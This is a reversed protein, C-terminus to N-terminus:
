YSIRQFSIIKRVNPQFVKIDKSLGYVIPEYHLPIILYNDAIFKNIDALKKARAELNATMDAELLVKDFDPNSYRGGWEAGTKLFTEILRASDFTTEEWGIMFFDLKNTTIDKFHINAPRAILNAKVGVESLQQAVAVGIEKDMVYRDSSVHLDISFGGPYGAKALLQKSREPNYELRNLDKNFGRMTPAPLQAAPVALGKMLHKNIAEENIALTLAERVEKKALPIEPNDLRFAFLVVRPGGMSMVKIKDSKQLEGVFPLPVDVCLDTQGTLLGAIRTADNTIPNIIVKPIPPAGDWHNKNSELIVHSERVWEKLIYRGTGMPHEAIYDDTKSECYKKSSISMTTYLADPLIPWPDKTILDITHPDIIKTETIKGAVFRFRSVPRKAMEISYAVDEATFPTGDSFNVGKRLHFRWTNPDISEWSTALAPILAGSPDRDVLGDYIAIVISVETHVFCGYPHLTSPPTMFSARLTDKAMAPFSAVLMAALALLALFLPSRHTGTM